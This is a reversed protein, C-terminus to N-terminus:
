GTDELKVATIVGAYSIGTAEGLNVTSLTQPTAHGFGLRVVVVLM